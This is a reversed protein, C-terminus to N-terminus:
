ALERALREQLRASEFVALALRVRAALARGAQLPSFARRLLVVQGPQEMVFWEAMSKKTAAAQAACEWAWAAPM